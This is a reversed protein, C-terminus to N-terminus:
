VSLRGICHRCGTPWQNSGEGTERAWNLLASQMSERVKQAQEDLVQHAREEYLFLLDRAMPVMLIRLDEATHCTLEPFTSVAKPYPGREGVILEGDGIYITKKECLNKFNLARLVPVSFKGENEKYFETVLLAREASVCPRASFSQERLRYIRPNM